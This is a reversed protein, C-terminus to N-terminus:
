SVGRYELDALGPLEGTSDAFHEVPTGMASLMSRYLNALPTNKEYQLNRGTSLAGGGKGALVIPLNRPNHANGDRLGSGFLIMSQDLVNSEGERLSKLKSLLYAYQETHWINIREYQALKDAKNEHHSTVHHGGINEDLFAFSRGSIANGFMFTAVRTVDTWFGLAIIDLMIRVHETHNGNRESVQAPNSYADIRRRLKEIEARALPDEMVVSKQRKTDFEIRKEVARVSELYEGLKERDDKGLRNQLARADAMVLDIVSKEQAAAAERDRPSNESRFLWNFAGRPNIEKALPTTPTRWAIHAGYLETFGASTDVGTHPPEIGLEISPLRTLHGMQQACVQDMSIGNSSVDAGTTRTIAAGTLFGGEKVYHADRSNTAAHWLQGLVLLDQKYEALPALAPSLEFDKGAGTPTWTEARVGNPMYLVAMRVPRKEMAAALARSPRMAELLPLALTAGVGKLLTRRSIPHFNM